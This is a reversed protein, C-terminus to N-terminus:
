KRGVGVKEERRIGELEAVANNGKQLRQWRVAKERGAKNRQRRRKKM